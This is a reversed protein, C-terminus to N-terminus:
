EPETLATLNVPLSVTETIEHLEVLRSAVQEYLCKRKAARAIRTGIDAKDAAGVRVFLIEVDGPIRSRFLFRSQYRPVDFAEILKEVVPVTLDLAGLGTRVQEEIELLLREKTAAKVVSVFFSVLFFEAGLAGRRLRASEKALRSSRRM